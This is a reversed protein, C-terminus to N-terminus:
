LILNKQKNENIEKKEKEIIKDWYNKMLKVLGKDRIYQIYSENKYGDIFMGKYKLQIEYKSSLEGMYKGCKHNIYPYYNIFRENLLQEAIMWKEGEVYFINYNSQFIQFVM